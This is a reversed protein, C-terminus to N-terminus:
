MASCAMDLALGIQYFGNGVVFLYLAVLGATTYYVIKHGRFYFLPLCVIPMVVIKLLIMAWSGVSFLAAVLPNLEVGCGSTIMIYTLITDLLNLIVWLFLLQVTKNGVSM